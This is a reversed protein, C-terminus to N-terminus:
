PRSNIEQQVAEEIVDIKEILEQVRGQASRKFELDTVDFLFFATSGLLTGVGLWTIPGGLTGIVSLTLIGLETTLRFQKRRAWRRRVIMEDLHDVFVRLNERALKLHETSTGLIRPLDAFVLDVVGGDHRFSNSSPRWKSEWLEEARVPSPPM